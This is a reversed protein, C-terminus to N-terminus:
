GPLLFPVMLPSPFSPTTSSWLFHFPPSFFCNRFSYHHHASPCLSRTDLCFTSFPFSLKSTVHHGLLWSCNQQETETRQTSPGLSPLSLSISQAALRRVCLRSGSIRTQGMGHSIQKGLQHIAAPNWWINSVAGLQSARGSLLLLLLLWRTTKKDM